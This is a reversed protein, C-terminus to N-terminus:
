PRVAMEKVRGLNIEQFTGDRMELRLIGTKPMCSLGGGDTISGAPDMSILSIDDGFYLGSGSVKISYTGTNNTGGYNSFFRFVLKQRRELDYTAVFLRGASTLSGSVTPSNGKTRNEVPILLQGEASRLEGGVTDIPGNPKANFSVKIVGPGAVFSYYYSPSGSTWRGKVTDSTMPAPSFPDTSQAAASAALFTFVVLLVVATRAKAPILETRLDENKM